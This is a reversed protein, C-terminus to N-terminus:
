SAARTQSLHYRWYATVCILCYLMYTACYAYPVGRTGLQPILFYSLLLLMGAQYLEALIYLKTNAKALAVYGAVYALTRFVDGVLQPGIVDQMRLFSPSFLVQIIPERFLWICIAAPVVVAACSVFTTKVEAHLSAHDRFQSLRPFYYNALVVAAFQLWADSLKVLGQWIGVQDWGLVEGQWQRLVIQALPMTCVTVLLMSAFALLDKYHQAHPRQGQWDGRLYGKKWIIFGAFLLGTCPAVILGWMAGALGATLVLLSTIAAGTLASLTSVAALGTVDHKGNLVASLLNYAGIALQLAAVGWFVPWYESTEFLLQSLWRANAAVLVFFVASTALWIAIAARLHPITSQDRSEQQAVYKTVGMAIGGGAFATTLAVVSMFQGLYGMGDTGLHLAIMKLVVFNAAMRAATSLGLTLGARALKM